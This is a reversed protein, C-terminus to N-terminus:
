FNMLGQDHKSAGLVQDQDRILETSSIFRYDGAYFFKLVCEVTQEDFHSWDLVNVTTTSWSGTIRARLVSSARALVSPHAYIVRKDNGM